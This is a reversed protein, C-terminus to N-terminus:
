RLYRSVINSSWSLWLLWSNNSCFGNSFWRFKAIFTANIYHNRVDVTTVNDSYGQVVVCSTSFLATQKARTRQERRETGKLTELHSMHSRLNSVFKAEVGCGAKMDHVKSDLFKTRSTAGAGGTDDTSESDVEWLTKKVAHYMPLEDLYFKRKSEGVCLAMHWLSLM